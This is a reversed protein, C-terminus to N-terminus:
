CSGRWAPRSGQRAAVCFLAAIFAVVAAAWDFRIAVWRNVAYLGWYARTTDDDLAAHRAAYAPLLGCARVTALGALTATAHDVLPSRALSDLRKLQRAAPRFAGAIRAFIVASPVLPVIFAPFVATILVV